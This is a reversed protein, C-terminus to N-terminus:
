PLAPHAAVPVADRAARDTPRRFQLTTFPFPM